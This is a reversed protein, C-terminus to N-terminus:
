AADLLLKQACTYKGTNPSGFLVIVNLNSVFNVYSEYEDPKIFTSNIRNIEQVHLKEIIFEQDKIKILQSQNNIEDNYTISSKNHGIFDQMKQINYYNNIITSGDQHLKEAEEQEQENETCEQDTNSLKDTSSANSSTYEKKEDCEIEEEISTTKSEIESM